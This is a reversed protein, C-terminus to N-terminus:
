HFDENIKKNKNPSYSFEDSGMVMMKSLSRKKDNSEQMNALNLLNLGTKKYTYGSFRDIREKELGLYLAIDKTIKGIRNRGVPRNVGKSNMMYIMFRNNKVISPRLSLYKQVYNISDLSPDSHRTIIFTRARNKGEPVQVVIENEKILVDTIKMNIIENGRM